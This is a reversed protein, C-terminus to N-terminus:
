MAIAAAMKTNSDDDDDNGKKRTMEQKEGGEEERKENSALTQNEEGVLLNLALVTVPIVLFLGQVGVFHESLYLAVLVALVPHLKLKASAFAPLALVLGGHVGIVMLLVQVLTKFGSESLAVIGMPLCAIMWGVVPIFSFILTVFSLLEVGPLGLVMLGITTFITNFVAVVFQVEFAQSILRGFTRVAPALEHYIFQVRSRSSGLSEMGKRLNPYDYVIISSFVFSVVSQSLIVSTYRLTKQIAPIATLIQEKLTEQIYATVASGAVGSMDSSTVVALKEPYVSALFSELKETGDNGLLQQVGNALAAYPNDSQIVQMFYQGQRMIRPVALVTATSILVVVSLIYTGAIFKRSAGPVRM